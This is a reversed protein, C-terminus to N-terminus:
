SSELGNGASDKTLGAIFEEPPVSRGREMRLEVDLVVGSHITFERALTTYGGRYFVLQHTGEKLWLYSPYGDYNGVVGIYEGDLHVKTRRRPKVNLDLAGLGALQAVGLDLGGPPYHSYRGYSYPSYHRGHGYYGNYGYGYGYYGRGYGHRGHGYHGSYHRYYGAEATRTPAFAFFAALMLPIGIRFLGKLNGFTM